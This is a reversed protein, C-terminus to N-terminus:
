KGGTPAGSPVANFYFYYNGVPMQTGKGGKHHKRMGKRAKKGMKRVGKGAKKALSRARKLLKNLGDKYKQITGARRISNIEKQYQAALKKNGKSGARTMKAQYMAVLDNQDKAKQAAKLRERLNHLKKQVAKGPKFMSDRRKTVLWLIYVLLAIVLLHVWM